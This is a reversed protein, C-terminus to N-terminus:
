RIPAACDLPLTMSAGQRRAYSEVVMAAGTAVSFGLTINPLVISLLRPDGTRVLLVMEAAGSLIAPVVSNRLKCEWSTPQTRHIFGLCACIATIFRVNEVMQDVRLALKAASQTWICWLRFLPIAHIVLLWAGASWKPWAWLYIVLWGLMLACITVQLTEGMSAFVRASCAM